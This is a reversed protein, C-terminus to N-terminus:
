NRGMSTVSHRVEHLPNKTKCLAVEEASYKGYDYYNLLCSTSNQHLLLLLLNIESNDKQEYAYVCFFSDIEYVKM